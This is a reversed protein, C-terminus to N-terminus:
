FYSGKLLCALQHKLSIYPNIILRNKLLEDNKDQNNNYDILLIKKFGLDKCYAILKNNYTGFPFAFEDIPQKCITELTQKSKLIESKAEDLSIGVLNTHTKGHSGITFLEHNAIEKIQMPNMLQWYEELSKSQLENWEEKFLDYLPLIKDYPLTKAKTKLSIGNYLFENKKNKKYYKGDFFVERKQSHLSVLDLFDPWLFNAKEHITTIYFCAPINYKKLIPIAYDYNNLYGDDFTLAINLTNKKFKKRYFDDLSIVNFHATIYTIFTKFYTESVFRSNFRTEGISDIGHFVLIREGYRIKLLVNEFGLNFLMVRYLLLLRYKIKIWLM